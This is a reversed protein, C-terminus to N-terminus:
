GPLYRRPRSAVASGTASSRSRGAVTALDIRPARTGITNVWIVPAPRRLLRSTLHQCSSPHRGWDDSFILLTTAHPSATEDM